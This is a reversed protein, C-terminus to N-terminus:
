EGAPLFPDCKFEATLYEAGESLEVTEDDRILHLTVGGTVDREVRALYVWEQEFKNKAM